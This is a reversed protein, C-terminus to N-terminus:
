KSQNLHNTKGWLYDIVQHRDFIPGGAKATQNILSDLRRFIINFITSGRDASVYYYDFGDPLEKSLTELEAQDSDVFIKAKTANIKKLNQLAIDWGFREPKEKGSGDFPFCMLIANEHDISVNIEEGAEAFNTVQFIYLGTIHSFQEGEELVVNLKNTDVFCIHGDYDLQHEISHFIDPSIVSKKFNDKNNLYGRETRGNTVVIKLIQEGSSITGLSAETIQEVVIKNIEQKRNSNM